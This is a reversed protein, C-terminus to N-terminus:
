QQSMYNVQLDFSSNPRSKMPHMMQYLHPFHTYSVRMCFFGSTM